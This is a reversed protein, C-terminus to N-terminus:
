AIAPANIPSCTVPLLLATKVTRILVRDAGADDIGGGVADSHGAGVAAGSHGRDHDILAKVKRLERIM